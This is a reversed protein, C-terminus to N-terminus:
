RSSFRQTVLDDLNRYVSQVYEPIHTPLKHGSEVLLLTGINANFGAEVDSIKDGILISNSTDINFKNILPTIMGTKPKRCECDIKYDGIGHEAHHPCYMVQHIVVNHEALKALMWENLINFDKESYYGRGIGAQNTIIFLLYGNLQLAKLASICNETFEFDESKHLYNVEKNIVGDRDLFVAKQKTTM